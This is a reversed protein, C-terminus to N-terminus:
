PSPESLPPEPPARGDELRHQQHHHQVQQQHQQTGPLLQGPGLHKRGARQTRGPVGLVLKFDPNEPHEPREACLQLSVRGYSRKGRPLSYENRQEKPETLYHNGKKEGFDVQKRRPSTANDLASPRRIHM